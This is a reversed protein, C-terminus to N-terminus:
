SLEWADDCPRVRGEAELKILHALVSEAAVPKLEEGLGAYVKDVLSQANTPGDRLVALIEPTAVVGTSLM